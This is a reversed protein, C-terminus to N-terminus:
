VAANEIHKKFIVGPKSYGSIIAVMVWASLPRSLLVLLPEPHEFAIFYM